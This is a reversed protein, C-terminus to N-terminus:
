GSIIKRGIRGALVVPDYVPSFPPAYALDLEFLDNLTLRATIATAYVDIRKVSDVPGALQAGLLRGEKKDAILLTTLSGGGPYYHAKSNANVAVKVAAFGEKEAEDLTLGTRALGLNCFKTVATGLIGPFAERGGCALQRLSPTITMKKVNSLLACVSFSSM